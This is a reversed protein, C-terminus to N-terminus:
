SERMFTVCCRLFLIGLVSNKPVIRVLFRTQSSLNKQNQMMYLQQNVCCGIRTHYRTFRKTVSNKQSVRTWFGDNTHILLKLARKQLVQFNVSSRFPEQAILQQVPPTYVVGGIFVQKLVMKVQNKQMLPPPPGFYWLFIKKFIPNSVFFYWKQTSKAQVTVAAIKCGFKSFTIFGSLIYGFSNIIM